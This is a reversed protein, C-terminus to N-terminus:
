QGGSSGELDIPEVEETAMQGIRQLAVVGCPDAIDDSTPGFWRIARDTARIPRIVNKFLAGLASKVMSRRIPRIVPSGIPGSVEVTAAISVLGPDHVQPTLM